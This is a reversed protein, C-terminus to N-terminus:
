AISKREAEIAMWDFTREAEEWIDDPVFADLEIGRSEAIADIYQFFMLAIDEGSLITELFVRALPGCDKLFGSSEFSNIIQQHNYPVRKLQPQWFGDRWDLLAYQAHTDGNLPGGVAGPNVILKGDRGAAIMPRHNHGCVLLSEELDAFTQYLKERSKFPSDFASELSGHVLRIASTGNIQIVRQEPINQLLALNHPELHQVAWRLMTMQKLTAWNAPSKGGIFELLRIDSNGLVSTSVHARLRDFMENEDPGSIWDGAVLIGDPAEARLANLVAELAPLNGHLDALLAFRVTVHNM